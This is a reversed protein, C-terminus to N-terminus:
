SIVLLSCLNTHETTQLSQQQVISTQLHFQNVHTKSTDEDTTDPYLHFAAIYTFHTHTQIYPYAGAGTIYLEWGGAALSGKLSSKLISFTAEEGASGRSVAAGCTSVCVDNKVM